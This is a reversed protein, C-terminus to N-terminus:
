PTCNQHGSIPPTPRTQHHVGLIKMLMMTIINPNFSPLLPSVYWVTTKNCTQGLQLLDQSSWIEVRDGATYVLHYVGNHFTVHPDPTSIDTITLVANNYVMKCITALRRSRSTPQNSSKSSNIHLSKDIPLHEKDDDDDRPVLPGKVDYLRILGPIISQVLAGAKGVSCDLLLVVSTFADSVSSQDPVARMTPYYM